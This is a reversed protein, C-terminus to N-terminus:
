SESGLLWDAALSGFFGPTRDRREAGQPLPAGAAPHMVVRRAPTPTTADIMQERERLRREALAEIIPNPAAAAARRAIVSM